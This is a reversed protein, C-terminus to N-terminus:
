GQVAIAAKVSDRYAQIRQFHDVFTQELQQFTKQLITGNAHFIHLVNKELLADELDLAMGLATDLSVNQKQAYSLIARAYNISMRIAILNVRHEDFQVQGEQMELQLTRILMAHDQEERHLRMWFEAHETFRTAFLAYVQGIAEEHTILLECLSAQREQDNM